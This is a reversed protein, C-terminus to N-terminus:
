PRQGSPSPQRLTGAALPARRGISSISYSAAPLGLLILKLTQQLLSRSIRDLGPLWPAPSGALGCRCRRKTSSRSYVATSPWSGSSTSNIGGKDSPSAVLSSAVLGKSASAPVDSSSLCSSPPSGSTYDGDGNYTMPVDVVLFDVELSKFKTKDGFRVLPPDNTSRTIEEMYGGAITAVVETSCEEDQM